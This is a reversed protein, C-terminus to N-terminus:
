VRPPRLHEERLRARDGLLGAVHLDLRRDLRHAAERREREAAEVFAQAVGVARRAREALLARAREELAARRLERRDPRDAPHAIGVLERLTHLAADVLGLLAAVQVDPRRQAGANRVERPQAFAVRSRRARDREVGRPLPRLAAVVALVVPAEERERADLEVL